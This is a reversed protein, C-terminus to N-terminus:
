ARDMVLNAWGDTQARWGPPIWVTNGPNDVVAPGRLRLGPPLPGTFRRADWTRGDWWVSRVGDPTADRAPDPRPELAPRATQGIADVRLTIAEM